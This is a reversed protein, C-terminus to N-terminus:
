AARTSHTPEAEASTTSNDVPEISVPHYHLLELAEVPLHFTRNGIDLRCLGDGNLPLRLLQETRANFFLKSNSSLPKMTLFPLNHTLYNALAHCDKGPQTLFYVFSFPLQGTSGKSGADLRRSASLRLSVLGFQHHQDLFQIDVLM